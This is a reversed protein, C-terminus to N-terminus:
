LGIVTVPLGLFAGYRAAAARLAKAEAPSVARFLSLVVEVGSKKLYRKWTGALRGGLVVVATLANGMALM